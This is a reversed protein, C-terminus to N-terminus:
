STFRDLLAELRELDRNGVVFDEAGEPGTAGPTKTSFEM